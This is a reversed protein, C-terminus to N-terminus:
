FYEADIFVKIKFEKLSCKLTNEHDTIKPIQEIHNKM